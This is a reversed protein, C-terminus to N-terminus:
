TATPIEVGLGHATSLIAAWTDEPIPIGEQRRRDATRLEPEGSVMVEAFGSAPPIAKIQDIVQDTEAEVKSKERFIGADIGVIFTGTQLQGGGTEAAPVLVQSLLAALTALASGKHGGFPLLMGGNSLAKPDTTPNGDQDLLCGPPVSERKAQALMVKGAAITSTAFDIMVDPRDAAPFGFSFPNTGFVPKRGGFPATAPLMAGITVMLVVGQEAALTSYTGLRGIHTCRVVGVAAVGASKAKAIAVETGVRASIQGFTFQGDVLASVPTERLVVPAANPQVRGEQVARVYGPIHQVGHSDHGALNAAILHDVLISTPEPDAGAAQFIRTATDRLYDARFLIM